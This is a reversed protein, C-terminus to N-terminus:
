HKTMIETQYSFFNLKCKLHTNKTKKKNKLTREREQINFNILKKKKKLIQQLKNFMHRM